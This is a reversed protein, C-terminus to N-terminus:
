GQYPYPELGALSPPRFFLALLSVILSIDRLRHRKLLCSHAAPNVPHSRVTALPQPEPNRVPSRRSLPSKERRRQGGIGKRREISRLPFKSPVEINTDGTLSWCM